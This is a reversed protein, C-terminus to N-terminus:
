QDLDMFNQITQEMAANFAGEKGQLFSEVNDSGSSRLQNYYQICDAWNFIVSIDVLRNRFVIDLIESSDDDDQFRKLKLTRDYYERTVDRNGLYAMAELTFTIEPLEDETVWAPICLVGFHYPNVTSSYNEQADNYKPMPLIGYHIEANRLADGSINQISGTMFLAKGNYFQQTVVKGEADDWRFYDEVFLTRDKDGVMEYVKFFANKNAEDRMAFVPLDESDKKVQALGSGMVLMYTDFSVGVLGWTDAGDYDMRGNDGDVAAEKMMEYM